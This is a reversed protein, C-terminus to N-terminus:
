GLGRTTATRLTATHGHPPERGATLRRSTPAPVRLEKPQPTVAILPRLPTM